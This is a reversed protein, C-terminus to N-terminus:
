WNMEERATPNDEVSIAEISPVQGKSFKKDIQNMVLQPFYKNGVRMLSYQGVVTVYDDRHINKSLFDAREQNCFCVVSVWIYKNKESKSFGNLTAVRFRALFKTDDNPNNKIEVDQNVYGEIVMLNLM